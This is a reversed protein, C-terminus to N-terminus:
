CCKCRWSCSFCSVSCILLTFTEMRLSLWCSMLLIIVVNDCTYRVTASATNKQILRSKTQWFDFQAEEEQWSWRTCQFVLYGLKPSAALWGSPSATTPTKRLTLWWHNMVSLRDTQLQAVSSLTPLQKFYEHARLFAFNHISHTDHQLNTSGVGPNLSNQIGQIGNLGLYFSSSQEYCKM